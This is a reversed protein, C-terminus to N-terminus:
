YKPAKDIDKEIQELSKMPVDSVIPDPIAKLHYQDLVGSQELKERAKKIIDSNNQIEAM